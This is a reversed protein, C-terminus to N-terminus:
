CVFGEQCGGRAQFRGGAVSFLQLTLRINQLRVQLQTMLLVFKLQQNM